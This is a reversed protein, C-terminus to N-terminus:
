SRGSDEKFSDNKSLINGHDALIDNGKNPSESIFYEVRESVMWNIFRVQCSRQVNFTSQCLTLTRRLFYPLTQVQGSVWIM